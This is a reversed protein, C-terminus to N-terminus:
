SINEVKTAPDTSSCAVVHFPIWAFEPKSLM